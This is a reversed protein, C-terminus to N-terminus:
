ANSAKLQPKTHLTHTNARYTNQSDRHKNSVPTQELSQCKNSFQM